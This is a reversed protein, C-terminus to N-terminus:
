RNARRRSVPRSRGAPAISRRYRYSDRIYENFYVGVSPAALLDEYATRPVGFYVYARGSTFEVHLEAAVEDYYVFSV